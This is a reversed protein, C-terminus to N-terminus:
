GHPSWQQLYRDIVTNLQCTVHEVSASADIVEITPDVAALELYRERTREFFPIQEQEIRDLAGRQRARQLGMQPPIDLYLTLDPKFDGLVLTKLTHLVDKGLQRGGGQYAQSSLDHRDALVWQGASLAPKIRNAVLQARSAYMLLLETIPQISEEHQQKVLQRLQEALPTGGPERTEVVQQIGAQVLCRRVTALATTKGAGELGEIVIFRGPPVKKQENM